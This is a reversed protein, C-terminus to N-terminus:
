KCYKRRFDSPSVGTNAKFTRSFNSSDSFGCCEVVEGVSLETQALYKKAAAIRCSKLYEMVSVGTVSKFIHSLHSPSMHQDQALKEITYNEAFDQEFLKQLRRVTEVNERRQVAFIEPASRRVMVMIEMLMLETFYDSFDEANSMNKEATIRAFLREAEDPERLTVANHFSGPRNILVTLLMMAEESIETSLEPSIWLVYRKCGPHPKTSHQEFRSILMLTGADATYVHDSVEINAEGSAIYIIQHCDHYHVTKGYVGDVFEAATVLERM